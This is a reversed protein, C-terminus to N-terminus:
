NIINFKINLNKQLCLADENNNYYAQKIAFQVYGIKEYLKIANNNSAKVELRITNRQYQQVFSELERMIKEGLGKGKFDKHVAISYIRALSSGERYLLLGYATIQKGEIQVILDSHGKQIFYRFQRDNLQDYNFSLNEIEVLRKIDEIKAKRYHM